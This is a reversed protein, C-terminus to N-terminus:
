GSTKTGLYNGFGVILTSIVLIALGCYLFKRAKPSSGKWEGLKIGWLSSFIIISAMHLTWSSFKYSGMKSEGIQYFFFQLYWVLGALSCFLYNSILPIHRPTSGTNGGPSTEIRHGREELAVNPRQRTAFYEYVSRNRINLFLCWFFNATFGGALIVILVPLGSWAAPNGQAETLKYIPRGVAFGFAFFASMIGSFTAILLGRKFNFEKVTEQKAQASMQKEKEMGARGTIAIGALCVLIGLLVVKGHAPTFVESIFRGQAIPPILTGFATCYGLAIAMGLSLGLYRLTLGFTVGGLGWCVGCLYTNLLTNPDTSTLVAIPDKNLLLAFIWPALLWSFFGGCLWYTEWSWNRVKRYPVYFSGSALGGLWHFFVGIIPM